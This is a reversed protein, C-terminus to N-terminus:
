FLLIKFYWVHSKFLGQAAGRKPAAPRCVSTANFRRMELAEQRRGFIFV